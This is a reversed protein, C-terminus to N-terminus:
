IQQFDITLLKFWAFWKVQNFLGIMNFASAQNGVEVPKFM